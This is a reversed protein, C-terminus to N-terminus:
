TGILALIASLFVIKLTEGPVLEHNSIIENAPNLHFDSVDPTESVTQLLGNVFIMMTDPNLPTGGPIGFLDNISSGESITSTLEGVNAASTTAPFVIKTAAFPSSDGSGGGGGSGAGGGSGESLVSSLSSNALASSQQAEPLVDFDIIGKRTRVCKAAIQFMNEVQGFLQRDENLSVIEYFLSGYQIYDGERVYLNQDETLRRKHFRVTIFNEKDLGFNETTTKIGDFEVLAHVRVPPHFVKDIAEGYLPHFTSYEVSLPMYAIAQGEIRELLEDNVQKVLDREKKGFFLPAPPNSPKTWKNNAM